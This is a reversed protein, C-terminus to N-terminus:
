NYNNHTTQANYHEFKLPWNRLEWIESKYTNILEYNRESYLYDYTNSIM